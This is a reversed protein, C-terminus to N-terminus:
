ALLRVVKYPYEVGKMAQCEKIFEDIKHVPMKQLEGPPLRWWEAALLETIIEEPFRLRIPKAPNGGVITYPAVDKVVVSGSAIVAGHGISIGAKLMCERGIWVDHGVNTAGYSTIFKPKKVNTEDIAYRSSYFFPSTSGWTVPHHGDAIRLGVALSCFRGVTLNRLTHNGTVCYSYAGLSLFWNGPQRAGEEVHSKKQIYLTQGSKYYKSSGFREINAANIENVADRTLTYPLTNKPPPPTNLM